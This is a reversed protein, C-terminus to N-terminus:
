IGGERNLKRIEDQYYGELGEHMYGAFDAHLRFERSFDIVEERLERHTYPSMRRHIVSLFLSHQNYRLEVDLILNAPIMRKVTEKVEDFMKKVTLEILIKLRYENNYLTIEYMGKGCLNDLVNVLARWTYPLEENLRAKIRFQRVELSDTGKPAIALIREWRRCGNETLTEIFQDLLVNNADSWAKTLIQSEVESLVKFERYDRIVDPQYIGIDVAKLM